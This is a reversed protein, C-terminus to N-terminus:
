CFSGQSCSNTNTWKTLQVYGDKVRPLIETVKIPVSSPIARQILTLPDYTPLARNNFRWLLDPLSKDAQWPIRLLWNLKLPFIDALSM